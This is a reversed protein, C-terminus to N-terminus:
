KAAPLPMANLRTAHDAIQKSGPAITVARHMTARAGAIDGKAEQAEALSDFANASTPFADAALGFVTVAADVQKRELLRYGLANLEDERIDYHGPQATRQTAFWRRAATPDNLRAYLDRGIPPKVPAADGGIALQALAEENVDASDDESNNTLQVITIRSDPYYALNAKFGRWDGDHNYRRAGNSAPKLKLGYGYPYTRGDTLRLPTIARRWYAIPVVRGSPLANEWILLDSVTSYIGGAGRVYFGPLQENPRRTGDAAPRFGWARPAISAENAPTRVRTHTMGLPGFFRRQLYADFPEDAVAEVLSAAVMYATNNYAFASGPPARLPLGKAALMAVVERGTLPASHKGSRLLAGYSDLMDPIGSTHNLLQEVTVDRYPFDPLYTTVPAALSLKGGAALTLVAMATFQKSVSGIDFAHDPTLANRASDGADGVAGRFVPKGDRAVIYAGNCVALAHCQALYDRIRTPVTDAPRASAPVAAVLAVGCAFSALRM